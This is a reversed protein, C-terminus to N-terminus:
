IVTERFLAAQESSDTMGPLEKQTVSHPTTRQKSQMCGLRQWLPFLAPSTLNSTATVSLTKGGALFHFLVKPINM